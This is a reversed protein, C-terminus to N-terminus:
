NGRDLQDPTNINVLIKKDPPEIMRVAHSNLFERPSVKRSNAFTKLLPFASAEWLTLLPEPMREEANYFCTAVSNNDRSQLLSKVVSEDVFPMDVAVILWAKNSDHQFATLIGNLPTQMDFQDRLPNLSTPVDQDARCSTFVSNCYKSLLRFLYERQPVDHYVILGKDKGMRSSRGGNLILGNIDPHKM